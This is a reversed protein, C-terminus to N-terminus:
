DLHAEFQHSFIAVASCAHLLNQVCTIYGLTREVMVELTFLVEGGRYQLAIECELALVATQDKSVRSLRWQSPQAAVEFIQNTGSSWRCENLATQHATKAQLDCADAWNQLVM